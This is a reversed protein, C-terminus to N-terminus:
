ICRLLVNTALATETVVAGPAFGVVIGAQGLGAVRSDGAVVLLGWIVTEFTSFAGIPQVTVANSASTLYKKKRKIILNLYNVTSIHIIFYFSYKCSIIFLIYM